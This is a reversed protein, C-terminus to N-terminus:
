SERAVRELFDLPVRRWTPRNRTEYVVEYVAKDLELASLLRSDSPEIHGYGEAFASRCEELWAGRAGADEATAAAYDFSRLMGALDRLGVDPSRREAISKLPEGEFDVYRWGMPTLLVQGLHCDGHIRQTALVTDEFGGYVNTALDRFRGLEPVEVAAADFRSLWSSALAGAPVTGTPLREALAVHIARLDEGLARAHAAFSRDEAAHHCALVFGDRPDTFAELFVALDSDEHTWTGFLEAVTGTGSLAAHIEVDPNPGAELRRFLKALVADGFFLSTNSQEGAYRRGPLGTPVDRLRRFGPQQSALATLLMSSAESDSPLEGVSYTRSLIPLQCLEPARGSGVPRFVLPIFYREVEGGPYVVDLFAPRVGPGHAPEVVWDLLTIGRPRGGRSRGSYWRADSALGWLATLLSM